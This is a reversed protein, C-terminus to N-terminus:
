SVANIQRCRPSLESGSVRERGVGFISRNQIRGRGAVAVACAGFVGQPFLRLRGLWTERTRVPPLEAISDLEARIQDLQSGGRNAKYGAKKEEVQAVELEAQLRRRKSDWKQGTNYHIGAIKCAETITIGAARAEWFRIKDENAVQRRGSNNNGTM